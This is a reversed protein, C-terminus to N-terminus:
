TEGAEVVRGGLYNRLLNMSWYWEATIALGSRDDVKPSFGLVTRAKTIDFARSKTFFGLRRPYIPPEIKLPLCIARTMKAVLMVPLIPVSRKPVSRGLVESLAKVLEKVQVPENGAMIFVEGVAKDHESALIMGDVLDKVFILHYYNEGSGVMWFVGRDIARFLKLLRYDGPGYIASPRIVVLPLGNEKSFQLALKEGEMKSVQYFDAPNYPSSETALGGKIEGLVGVTSCHVFHSVGADRAAKLVKETGRVNVDFFYKEKHGETRYVAALHFVVDVGQFAHEPLNETVLDVHFLELGLQKLLISKRASRVFARVYYGRKVLENCLHSGLFGSAGTVLATKKV